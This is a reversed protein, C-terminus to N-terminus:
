EGNETAEALIEGGADKVKQSASESFAAIKVTLPKTVRGGGLLKTYGLNELDIFLKDEEKRTALKQAMEDLEGVNIAKVKRRISLPSTFGKRGFYDPEYKVVYSWKHKHRGAKRNPKAGQDRHQGVKGWGCTRSGRYKRSKRLRTPM